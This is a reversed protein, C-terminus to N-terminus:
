EFSWFGKQPELFDKLQSERRACDCFLCLYCGKVMIYPLTFVGTELPSTYFCLLVSQILALGFDM